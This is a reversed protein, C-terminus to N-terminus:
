VLRGLSQGFRCRDFPACHFGGRSRGCVRAHLLPHSHGLTGGISGRPHREGSGEGALTTTRAFRVSCLAGPHKTTSTARGQTNSNSNSNSNSSNNNSNNSSNNNNSNNSSCSSAADFVALAAKRLWDRNDRLFDRGEQTAAFYPAHRTPWVNVVAKAIATIGGDLQETAQMLSPSDRGQMKKTTHCPTGDTSKWSAWPWIANMSFHLIHILSCMKAKGDLILLLYETMLWRAEVWGSQVRKLGVMYPGAYPDFGKVRAEKSYKEFVKILQILRAVASNKDLLPMHSAEPEPFNQSQLRGLVQKAISRFRSEPTSTPSAASASTTSSSLQKQRSRMTQRYTRGASQCIKAHHPLHHALCRDSCYWSECSQCKVVDDLQRQCALCCRM